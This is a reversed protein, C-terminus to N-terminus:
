PTRALLALQCRKWERIARLALARDGSEIADELAGDLEGWGIEPRKDVPLREWAANASRIAAALETRISM